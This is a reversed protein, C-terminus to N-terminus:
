PLQGLPTAPLGTACAVADPGFLQRALERERQAITDLFGAAGRMAGFTDFGRELFSQLEHLGAARAPGRMMRLSHRMLANRTYRDLALGVDLTLVIQRDRDDPRGTAQWAQVYSTRDLPRDALHRAMETDLAESLAHLAALAAVTGVIERPFLKVLAPVVRSFQADRKAFDHPGYLEELFFRAAAGYRSSELLDRYTLCFRDQQYRKIAEVQRALTSDSRRLARQADVEELHELITKAAPNM